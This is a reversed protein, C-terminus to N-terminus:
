FQERNQCKHDNVTNIKYAIKINTNKFINLVIRTESWKFTAKKKQASCQKKETIIRLTQYKTVM